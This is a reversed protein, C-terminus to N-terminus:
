TVKGMFMLARFLRKRVFLGTSMAVWALFLSSLVGVVGLVVGTSGVGM